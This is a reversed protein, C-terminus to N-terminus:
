EGIQDAHGLFEVGRVLAVFLCLFCLSACSACTLSTLAKHRKHRLTAIGFYLTRIGGYLLNANAM